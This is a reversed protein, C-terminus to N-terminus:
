KIGEGQAKRVAEIVEAAGYVNGIAIAVASLQISRGRPESCATEKGEFALLVRRVVAADAERGPSVGLREALSRLRSGIIAIHGSEHM